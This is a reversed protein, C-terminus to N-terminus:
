GWFVPELELEYISQVLVCLNHCLCKLLTENVQSVPLKARVSGGFKSKLMMMTSEVNSRVHYHSLFDDRRFNYYYWMKEWLEDQQDRRVPVPRTGEKFPIYPVAGTAEIARLNAKSSYAKDGTIEQANFAQTSRELLAPLQPADASEYATAQAATIINTTTGTMLHLKIWKQESRVRGWKYDYWRSYSNTAFGTSDIALKTEVVSLPRASEEILAQLLPTLEESELRRFASSYHPTHEILGRSQAGRIYSTARRGSVTSYTKLALAFVVDSLPLQPRGTSQVPQAIGACLRCLLDEFREAEHTQAADYASWQQSYTMRVTQTTSVTGDPKIETEQQKEIVLQVAILHKCVLGDPGRKRFDQCSCNKGPEVIYCGEGSQSPVTWCGSQPQLTEAIALARTIRTEKQEIEATHM